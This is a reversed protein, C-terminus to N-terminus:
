AATRTHDLIRRSSRKPIGPAQKVCRCFTLTPVPDLRRRCPSSLRPAPRRLSLVSALRTETFKRVTWRGCEHVLVMFLLVGTVVLCLIAMLLFLVLVESVWYVKTALLIAAGVALGIAPLSVAVSSRGRTITENRIRPEM